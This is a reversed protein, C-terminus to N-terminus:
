VDFCWNSTCTAALIEVPPTYNSKTNYDTFFHFHWLINSPAM